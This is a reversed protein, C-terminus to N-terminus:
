SNGCRALSGGNRLRRVSPDNKAAKDILSNFSDSRNGGAMKLLKREIGAFATLFRDSNRQTMM